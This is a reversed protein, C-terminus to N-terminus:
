IFHFAVGHSAQLSVKGAMRMGLRDAEAEHVRSSPMDILYQLSVCICCYGNLPLFFVLKRHLWLLRWGRDM